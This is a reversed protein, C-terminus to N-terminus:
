RTPRQRNSSWDLAAQCTGCCRPTPNKLRLVVTTANPSTISQVNKLDANGRLTPTTRVQNLSWVVDNVTFPKGSHFTVGNRINFTYTLGDESVSYRSALGPVIRGDQTRSVLGQYVNDILVQDLAIGATNRIDLNTPELVLGVNVTANLDPVAQAPTALLLAASLTLLRTRVTHTHTM